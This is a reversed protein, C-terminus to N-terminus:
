KVIYGGHIQSLRTLVNLNHHTNAKKLEEDINSACMKCKVRRAATKLGEIIGRSRICSSCFEDESIPAECEKCKKTEM